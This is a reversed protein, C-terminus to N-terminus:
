GIVSVARYFYEPFYKYIALTLIVGFLVGILFGPGRAKAPKNWSNRFEKPNYIYDKRSVNKM